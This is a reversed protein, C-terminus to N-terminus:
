DDKEWEENEVKEGKGAGQSEWERWVLNEHVLRLLNFRMFSVCGSLVALLDITAALLRLRL